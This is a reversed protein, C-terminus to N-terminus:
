GRGELSPFQGVVHRPWHSFFTAAWALTAEFEAATWCREGHTLCCQGRQLEVTPAAGDLLFEMMRPHIVDYAFRKDKSKVVFRKSFEASEFDIDDFGLFGAIKDFFGESRVFLDPAGLYPTEVILYSLYHHHTQTRTNGKSDTSTSTTEYHFDGLQVPWAGEGIALAGRITNYAYQNRGSNFLSFHGYRQDHSYDSSLDFSWGRAAAFQSLEAIRKQQAQYSFYAGVIALVIFAIVIVIFWGEVPL